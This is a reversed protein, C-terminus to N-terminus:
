PSVAIKITNQETKCGIRNTDLKRLEINNQKMYEDVANRHTAEFKEFVDCYVNMTVSIDRHGLM